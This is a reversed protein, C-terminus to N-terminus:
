ILESIFFSPFRYIYIPFKSYKPHLQRVKYPLCRLKCQFGCFSCAGGKKWQVRLHFEDIQWGRGVDFQRRRLMM